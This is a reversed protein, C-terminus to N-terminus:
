AVTREKLNKSQGAVYWGKLDRYLMGSYGADLCMKFGAEDEAANNVVYTPAVRIRPFKQALKTVVGVEPDFLLKYRTRFPLEDDDFVGDLVHFQVDVAKPGGQGILAHFAPMQLRYRHNYLVGDLALLAPIRIGAFVKVLPELAGIAKGSRNKFSEATLLGPVGDMRPQIAVPYADPALPTWPRPQMLKLPHCVGDEAYGEKIKAEYMKAVKATVDAESKEHVWAKATPEKGAVGYVVRHSKSGTEISWLYTKQDKGVKTLQPHKKPM